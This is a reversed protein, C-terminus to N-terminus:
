FEWPCLNHEEKASKNKYESAASNLLKVSATDRLEVNLNISSIENM